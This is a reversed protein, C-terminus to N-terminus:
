SNENNKQEKNNQQENDEKKGDNQQESTEQSANNYDTSNDNSSENSDKVNNNTTNSAKNSSTSNNSSVGKKDLFETADMRQDNVAIWYHKEGGDITMYIDDAIPAFLEEGISNLLTYKKGKCAVIVNYDPIVLLNLADKNTSAIYGFSDYNFDVVKRGNKDYLGWLKDKRIPILNEALLYRNKIKNQEFKSADIGIEDNETFVKPKGQLDLVGYKNDKKVVYLGADSDMLEISDYIIQIKTEGNKSLVGVKKNSEVLFDGVNPLYTINDYKDELITKGQTDIVGYINKNEGKKVVLMNQLIAKKNAFVDSIESYGIDLAKSSYNQVLYPLTYIIMRNKDQDYQFNVNFAKEITESTAYLIGDKAKVPKKTYLYEYNDNSNTLDLKYIKNSGLSFNAVENENQIYCKSANESKDKYEGNYSEYGFYSAIEKIPFYVTGDDEIQILKKVKSNEKGDLLVKLTSNQLYMLYGVTVIILIFVFIIAVLIIATTSKKKKEGKNQFEEEILNM